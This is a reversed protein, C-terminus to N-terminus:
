AGPHWLPVEEAGLRLVHRRFDLSVDHSHMVDLGLIFEDIVNAFFVWTTLPRRGVTVTVLAEKLVRLIEWLEMQLVYSTSLDREPLGSTVDPRAITV